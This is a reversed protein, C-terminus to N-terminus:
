RTLTCNLGRDEENEKPGGSLTLHPNLMTLKPGNLSTLRTLLLQVLLM